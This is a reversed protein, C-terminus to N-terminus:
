EVHSAHYGGIAKGAGRDGEISRAEPCYENGLGKAMVM